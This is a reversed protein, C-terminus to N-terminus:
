GGLLKKLREKADDHGQSTGFPAAARRGFQFFECYNARDKQAVYDAERERCQQSVSPDYSVCNLCVRLDAECQRCTDGRGPQGTGPYPAGCRHCCRATEM